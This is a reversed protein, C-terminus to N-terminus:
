VVWYVMDLISDFFSIMNKSNKYIEAFGKISDVM